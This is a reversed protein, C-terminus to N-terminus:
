AHDNRNLYRHQDASPCADINSASDMHALSHPDPNTSIDSECRATWIICLCCFLFGARARRGVVALWGGHPRPAHSLFRCYTRISALSYRSSRRAFGGSCIHRYSCYHGCWHGYDDLNYQRNNINKHNFLLIFSSTKRLSPPDSM